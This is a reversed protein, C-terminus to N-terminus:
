KKGKINMSIAPESIKASNRYRVSTVARRTVSLRNQMSKKTFMTSLVGMM